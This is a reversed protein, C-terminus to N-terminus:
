EGRRAEEVEGASVPQPYDNGFHTRVYGVVAAVQADDLRDFAPMGRLGKVVVRIVYPGAALKGNGALAPYAAAGVAGRGDPMHCGQCISAYLDDGSREEFRPGPSLAPAPRAPSAGDRDAASGASATLLTAAAATWAIAALLAPRM